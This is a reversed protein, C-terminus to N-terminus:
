ASLEKDFLYEGLGPGARKLRTIMTGIKHISDVQEDLFEGEIFDCLHADNHTSGVAHLELLSQNVNRELVLASQLAELGSGWEDQEPKPLSALMVRGGRSNQYKMLKEAHEREEDSSHKFFKSFGPLAVDDRAFYTAMSLYVYSAHLEM